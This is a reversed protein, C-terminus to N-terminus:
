FSSCAVTPEMLGFCHYFHPTRPELRHHLWASSPMTPALLSNQASPPALYPKKGQKRFAYEQFNLSLLNNNLAVSQQHLLSALINLKM